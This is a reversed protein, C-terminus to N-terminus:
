KIGEVDEKMKKIAEEKNLKTGYRYENGEIDKDFACIAKFKCFECACKTKSKFPKSSIVGSILEDCLSGISKNVYKRLVEFEEINLVSESNGVNGDKNLKAPVILSVSEIKKDMNAIVKADKLVIGTMKFKKLIENEIDTKTMGRTARILPEDLKFYLMAGPLGNKKFIEKSNKLLMDIYMILQIQMLYYIDGIEVDKSSSKYDIVRIYADDDMNLADVKDIQGTLSVEKGSPLTLKVAPLDGDNGIKLENKYTEFNSYKIHFLIAKASNYLVKKIRKLVFEYKPSSKLISYKKDEVIKEIIKDIEEKVFEEEIEKTSFDVNITNENSNIRDSFEKLTEHMLTGMDPPSFEYIKREKANLGSEVFYSFPCSSYKELRSPSFKLYKGYLGEIKKPNIKRLKNKFQLGKIASDYKYKWTQHSSYWKEVIRWNEDRNIDNFSELLRNFTPKEKSVNEIFNDHKIGEIDSEEIINRFITKLRTIVSSEKLSRGESDSISYTLILNRTPISLTEYTLYQDEITMEKTTSNLNIGIERLSLRESDNIINEGESKRPFVGENAGIIFLNKIGSTRTTSIDGILIEDVSEPIIGINYEDFGISLTKSFTKLDMKMDGFAEVMKDLTEMIASFVGTYEKYKEINGSRRFTEIIEEMRITVSRNVLFNYLEECISRVNKNRKLNNEFEIIPEVVIKRIENLKEIEIDSESNEFDKKWKNGKIGKRLVYNELNDINSYIDEKNSENELELSILGTKLYSFVNEYKWNKDVIEILSRILVIFPNENIPVKKNIHYPIEYEDMIIKLNKEYVSLNGSVIAIDKYRMNEDRVMKIINKAIYDAESFIDKSKFIKVNENKDKFVDHPYKFFNKEIHILEENEFKKVKNLKEIDIIKIEKNNKKAIEIIRNEFEISKKFVERALNDNRPVTVTIESVNNILYEFIKYQQESLFYFDDMYIHSGNLANFNLLKEMLINFEEESDLYKDKIFEDYKSKILAIENLKNKLKIPLDNRQGLYFLTTKDISYGSLEELLTLITKTFGANRMSKTFTEIKEDMNLMINFLIMAKSAKNIYKYKNGGFEKFVNRKLRSFTYVEINRTLDKEFTQISKKETEHSIQEPVLIIKKNNSNNNKIEDYFFHSKGSGSPGRVIKLM